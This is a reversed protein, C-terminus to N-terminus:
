SECSYDEPLGGRILFSLECSRYDHYVSSIGSHCHLGYNVIQYAGPHKPAGVHGVEPLVSNLYRFTVWGGAWLNEVQRWGTGEEYVAFIFEHFNVTSKM